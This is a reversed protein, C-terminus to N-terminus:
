SMEFSVWLGCGNCGLCGEKKGGFHPYCLRFFSSFSTLCAFFFSFFYAFFFSLSFSFPQVFILGFIYAINDGRVKSPVLPTLRLGM